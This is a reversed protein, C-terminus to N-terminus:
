RYIMKEQGFKNVDESRYLVIKCNQIILSKQVVNNM